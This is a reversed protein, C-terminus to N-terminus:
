ISSKPCLKKTKTSASVERVLTSYRRLSPSKPKISGSAYRMYKGFILLLHACPADGKQMYVLEAPASNPVSMYSHYAPEERLQRLSPKRKLSLWVNMIEFTKPNTKM